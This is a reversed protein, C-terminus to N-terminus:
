VNKLKPDLADRLRDGFINLALVVIFMAVGASALQWWRGVVLGMRASDIMTGWSHRGKIGLGLYALIVEAGIAGVFGLSFNIIGIHLVNPIVHCLLIPLSRRGAARAATVYDLERIRMTEARVYRCTGIWATISLAIVIGAMGEFNIEMWTGKWLIMGLFAFKIAIVRILGPVSALTTFLWVIVDDIFGGYYGAVAGLLIGLPVAIINAMFGVTMSVNAGLLTKELVSRGFEDTGLLFRASPPKNTSTYDVKESWDPYAFGAVIAVVAYLVIVGLCIMAAKDRAIRRAADAWLSRGFRAEPAIM